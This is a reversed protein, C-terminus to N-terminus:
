PPYRGAHRSHLLFEEISETLHSRKGLERLQTVLAQRSRRTRPRNDPWPEAVLVPRQSGIPGIGVLASRYIDPHNNFITECPITFMTGQSTIVRHAMRGCFWFRDQDDLYGVDGMRHWTTGSDDIKALANAERRTVYERTVVAGSVILEGVENVPQETVDALNRIPGDVIRIVKWQIGPFRRGVCTGAGQGSMAATEDLIETASISAVPLAETAGYPTYIEGDRPIAQKMRALVHPPVPAGASLVRRLTPLQIRNEECYRGVRNWIAPSGFSQTAGWTHIASVFKRPDVKAPRSADMEPLVTTVGLAANFLGFLPFGPVDIEGPQIDYREGIEVVQQEFTGHNYLVGKPPGTSGTTFIIAAPDEISTEAADFHPMGAARVDELTPGKWWFRRGVTVNLRSKPFRSTVLSRIAHAPPIAIFGEPESDALCKLLNRKGMGPDILIQVAGAKLLAFVIAFFDISPRVLVAIRMGRRVDHALLGTAIRNTDEELEAFSITRYRQRGHGRLSPEAIAVADPFQAAMASLRRSVNVSDQVSVISVLKVALYKGGLCVSSCIRVSRSRYRCWDNPQYSALRSRRESRDRLAKRGQRSTFGRRCRYCWHGRCGPAGFEVLEGTLELPETSAGRSVNTRWDLPNRRTMGFAKKGVLLVRLDAGEHAIFEQLYIVAGLGVLLSFTRQAIAEDNVRAIGRGEAGFLPKIVVDSGLEVFGAMADEVTQCVFTRPTNLGAAELKASALYKDVAAELSEPLILYM